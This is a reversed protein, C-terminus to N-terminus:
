NDRALRKENERFVKRKAEEAKQYMFFLLYDNLDMELEQAADYFFDFHSKLMEIKVKKTHKGKIDDITKRAVEIRFNMENADM